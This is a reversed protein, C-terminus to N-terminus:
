SLQRVIRRRSPDSGQGLTFGQTEALGLMAANERAVDGWVEKLGRAKAHDLLATLLKAGLGRGSWDSRVMLAIEATEGEPDAALRAVGALSGDPLEAVLAMERDYDIHALREAWSPPLHRLGSRFRLHVDEASSHDIMTILGPADQPRIPRVCVTSPGVVIWTELGTPYPRIAPRYGDAPRRLRIRADVALVGESDALLPNIDLEAIEPLDLAIQSLAVLVKRIAPRDAPLRDRYGALRRAVRTRAIMDEALVDDLPALGISRDGEIEVSVGGRGFLVTPGFTADQIVGAILEETKPRSVMAQVLFGDIRASPRAASVDRLMRRAAATVAEGGSLGLMVGGVDSKHTLDPSLIKLAVPCALTEAEAGAAEPTDFARAALTPVGYAALVAGCEPLTLQDRGALLAAAVTARAADVATRDPLGPLAPAQLLLQQGRYHDALHMFARVAEEPTELTPIGATAFARRAPAASVEGLWCTLVPRSRGAAATAEIVARAAAESSAVATPCNLVLLADAGPEALLVEMAARYRDPQADGIIDVPGALAAQPPLVKSLSGRAAEPVIAVRGGRAELADAAMVGAGGGNTLIGLNDGAVSIGSTLVTVADFLERLGEVRLMGARRFAADYVADSGALAGTHSFAARAGAAGRGAKIVVVPKNRSAIRGATMFKCADAISEVYLLIARTQPDLALYDLMDGFDVDASDGLSVVHSFGFGRPAAWDLAATVIAGSQSVLAIGGPAPTLQAFSANLGRRPSIFGLGNPGVIRMMHPRAAALLDRRAAADFGASIVVAARCGRQGLESVIGPVTAAPTAIVALDPTIPLAAVSPYALTSRISSARPNVAMVPGAFGGELLNRALVAGVSGLRDSAGILAISRPEFLADLNRTTM